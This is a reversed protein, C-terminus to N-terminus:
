QTLIRMFHKRRIMSLLNTMMSSKLNKHDSKFQNYDFKKVLELNEKLFLMAMEKEPINTSELNTYIHYVTELLESNKLIEVFENINKKESSNDSNEFLISSFKNSVITKIIGFNINKM